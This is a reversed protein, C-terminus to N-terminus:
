FYDRVSFSKFIIKIIKLEFKILKFVFSKYKQTFLVKCRTKLTSFIFCCESFRKSFVNKLFLQKIVLRNNSLFYQQCLWNSCGSCKSYLVALEVKSFIKETKYFCKCENCQCCHQLIKNFMKKLSLM